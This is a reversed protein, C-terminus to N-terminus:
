SEPWTSVSHEKEFATTLTKLSGVPPDTKNLGQHDSRSRVVLCPASHLWQDREIRQRGAKVKMLLWKLQRSFLPPEREVVIKLRVFWRIECIRLAM